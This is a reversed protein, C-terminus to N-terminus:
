GEKTRSRHQDHSIRKNLRKNFAKRELALNYLQEVKWEPLQKHLVKLVGQHWVKVTGDPEVQTIIRENDPTEKYRPM